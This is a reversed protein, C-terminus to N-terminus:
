SKTRRGRVLEIVGGFGVAQKVGFGHVFGDASVEGSVKRSIAWSVM